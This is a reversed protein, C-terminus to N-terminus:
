DSQRTTVIARPRTRRKTVLKAKRWERVQKAAKALKWGFTLDVEHVEARGPENAPVWAIVGVTPDLEPMPEWEWTFQNFIWKAHSYCALQIALSMHGFDLTKQSKLDGIRFTGDTEEYIRDLRGAVGLEPIAIIREMYEPVARLGHASLLGHYARLMRVSEEPLKSALDPLEDVTKGVEDLKEALDHFNTGKEAGSFSGAEEMATSAVGNIVDKLRKPMEGGEALLDLIIGVDRGGIADLLTPRLKIGIVTQRLKWLELFYTDELTKALTTVRTWPMADCVGPIGPLNAYRGFRDHRVERPGSEIEGPEEEITAVEGGFPNFEEIEGSM